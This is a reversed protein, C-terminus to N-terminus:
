KYKNQWPKNQWINYKKSWNKGWILICLYQQKYPNSMRTNYLLAIGWLSGVYPYVGRPNDRSSKFVLSWCGKMIDMTNRQFELKM